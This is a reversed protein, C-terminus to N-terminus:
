YRYYTTYKSTNIPRTCLYRKRDTSDCPASVVTNTTGSFRVCQGNHNALWIDATAIGAIGSFESILQARYAIFCPMDFNTSDILTASPDGNKCDNMAGPVSALSTGWMAVVHQVVVKAVNYVQGSCGCSWTTTGTASSLCFSLLLFAIINCKKEFRRSSSNFLLTM